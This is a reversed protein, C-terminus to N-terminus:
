STRSRHPRGRGRPVALRGAAGAASRAAAAMRRAFGPNSVLAFTGFTRRDIVDILQPLTRAEGLQWEGLRQSALVTHLYPVCFGFLLLLAALGLTQPAAKATRLADRGRWGAWFPLPALLILTQQNSLGLGFLTAIPVILPWRSADEIWLLCLLVIAAAFLDNLSFVEAQLSWTVFLPSGIALLLAAFLAPGHRRVLVYGAAYVLAVTAAHFAAATLNVRYALPGIPVLAALHTLVIWLPYGPPHAVGNGAASAVLELADGFMVDRAALAAYIAFAAIGLLTAATAVSRKLDPTARPAPAASPAASPAPTPERRLVHPTVIIYLNDTSSTNNKVSFLAGILPINAIGPIKALSNIENKEILGGIVFSEGDKVIATTYAQRQAIQPYTQSFGTVSSVASYIHITVYGDSAVRPQIQLNVGVNVYQVQQQVANVGSVAISTVIPLANGTIISAQTGDLALIRPQAILRGNGKTIQGYVAAQLNIQGTTNAFFQSQTHVVLSASALPGGGGSLDIGAQIAGSETLEVIQTELMISTLPIDIQDIFAKYDAILDPPGTLIIANLRRDISINDNIHTAVGSGSGLSNQNFSPGGGFSAVGGGLPSGFNGAGPQPSFTDNSPINQGPVLLGVVESLDAYKLRVIEHPQNIALPTLAPASGLAVGPLVDVYLMQGPVPFARIPSNGQLTLKLTLNAGSPAITGGVIAGGTSTTGPVSAPVNPAKTTGYLIISVNSTGQGFVKFRPVISGGFHLALRSAGGTVPLETVDILTPGAAISPLPAILALSAFVLACVRIM